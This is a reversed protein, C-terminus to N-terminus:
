ATKRFRGGVIIQDPSCAARTKDTRFRKVTPQVLKLDPSAYLYTVTAVISQGPLLKDYFTQAHVSGHHVPQNTDGNRFTFIEFSHKTDSERRLVVVDAEKRWKLRRMTGGARPRGVTYLASIEKLIVGEAHEDHLRKVMRAKEEVNCATEVPNLAPNHLAIESLLLYWRELMPAGLLSREGASCLDVPRYESQQIGPVGREPWMWEGAMMTGVPFPMLARLAAPPVDTPTGQKNWGVVGTPTRQLRLNKGDLKEQAVWNDATILDVAEIEDIDTALWAEPINM